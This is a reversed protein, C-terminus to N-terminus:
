PKLTAEVFITKYSRNPFGLMLPVPPEPKCHSYNLEAPMLVMKGFVLRKLIRKSNMSGPIVNLRVAIWKLPRLIRQRISTNKVKMDGYFIVSFNHLVMLEEFEKIGFYYHSFPSPNFDYLDKNASVILLQGKPRLLRKCENIFYNPKELYYIAEVLLVVDFSCDAFPLAHADLCVVPVREGYHDRAMSVISQTFDGGVLNKASKNLLGLGMGAGCAVELVDKDKCKSAAWSYRNAARQLQESTVESNTLETVSNYSFKM